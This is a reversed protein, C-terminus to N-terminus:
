YFDNQHKMRKPFEQRGEKITGSEILSTLSEITYYGQSLYAQWGKYEVTSVYGDSEINFPLMKNKHYPSKVLYTGAIAMFPNVPKVTKPSELFGLM